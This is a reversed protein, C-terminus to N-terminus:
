GGMEERTQEGESRDSLFARRVCRQVCHYTGAANPPAIRSRTMRDHEAHAPLQATPFCRLRRDPLGWSQTDNQKKRRGGATARLEFECSEWLTREPRLYGWM